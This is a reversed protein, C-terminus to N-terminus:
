PGEFKKGKILGGGAMKAKAIKSATNSLDTLMEQATNPATKALEALSEAM